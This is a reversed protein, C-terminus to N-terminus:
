HCTVQPVVVAEMEIKRSCLGVASLAVEVVSQVPSQLRLTQALCESIFSASSASDLLGRAEATSGDPGILGRLCFENNRLGARM